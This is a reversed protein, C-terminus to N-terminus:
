PGEIVRCGPCEWGPEREQIVDYPMWQRAELTGEQFQRELGRLVREQILADEATFTYPPPCPDAILQGALWASLAVGGVILLYGLAAVGHLPIKM